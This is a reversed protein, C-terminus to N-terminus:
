YRYGMFGLAAAGYYSGPRARSPAWGVKRDPSRSRTRLFRTPTKAGQSRASANANALRSYDCEIGNLIVRSDLM